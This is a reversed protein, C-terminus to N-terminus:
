RDPNNKLKKKRKQQSDYVGKLCILQRDSLKKFKKFYAKLSAVFDRCGTTQTADLVILNFLKEINETTNEM